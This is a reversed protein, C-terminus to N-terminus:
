HYVIYVRKIMEYSLLITNHQAESYYYYGKFSKNTNIYSSITTASIFINKAAIRISRFPFDNVLSFNEADYVFVRFGKKEAPIDLAIKRPGKGYFPNIVGLRSKSKKERTVDSDKRGLLSLRIKSRTLLLIKYCSNKKKGTSILM